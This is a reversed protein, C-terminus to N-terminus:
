SREEEMWAALYHRPRDAAVTLLRSSIGYMRDLVDSSLIELPTRAESLRGQSMLAMRVQAGEDSLLLPQNVDHTTLLITQGEERALRGLTKLFSLSRRPDLHATPEDLVLIRSRQVLARALLVTQLEGGSLTTYPREALDDIGLREMCALAASTDPSRLDLLRRGHTGGMAVVDVTRYPFTRVHNQPVYALLSALERPAYTRNERGLIRVSGAKPKLHGLACHELTTKGCGNPGVLCLIQGAEVAFSVDSFVAADGYAFSLSQVELLSM